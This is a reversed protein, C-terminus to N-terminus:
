GIDVEAPAVVESSSGPLPKPLELHTIKWGPHRLIGRYPGAGPINGSLRIQSPNFGPEVTVEQGEQGALIPQVTLRGELAKRCGAHVARAAAGIQADSYPTLDEALFDLLRGERQLLGLLVEAAVTGDEAVAGSEASGSSVTAEETPKESHKAAELTRQLLITQLLAVVLPAVAFYAVCAACVRYLESALPVDISSRTAFLLVLVNAVSFAIGALWILFYLTTRGGQSDRM